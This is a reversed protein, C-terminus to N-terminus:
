SSNRSAGVTSVTGSGRRRRVARDDADLRAPEAARVPVPPHAVIGVDAAERVHGPVLQGAHDLGDAGVHPAPPGPLAHGHREHARAPRALLAGRALPLDAVALGLRAERVPAREGLQDREVPGVDVEDAQGVRDAGHRRGAEAAAEGGGVARHELDPARLRALPDRHVAAAADPQGRHHDRRGHARADDRDVHGLRREVRRAGGARLMATAAPASTRSSVPPPAWTLRSAIPASAAHAADTAPRRLRPRWTWTPSSGSGGRTGISRTIPRSSSSSPECPM